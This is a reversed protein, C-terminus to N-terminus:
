MCVLYNKFFNDNKRSLTIIANTIVIYHTPDVHVHCEAGNNNLNWQVQMINMGIVITHALALDSM